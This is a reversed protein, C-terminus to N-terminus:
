DGSAAIVSDPHDDYSVTDFGDGGQMLDAGAGGFVLDDGDRSDGGAVEIVDDGAQGDM